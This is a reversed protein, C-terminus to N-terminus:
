TGSWRPARKETFARAGETADDTALVSRWAAASRGWDEAPITDRALALSERVAVPANRAIATALEAVAADLEDPAVVRTLLGLELAEATDFRRGTLILELARKEPVLRPLRLVGGAAAVLGRTVEPLGFWTGEAAVVLDCALALELGGALAYGHVAAIVPTARPMSVFGAFTGAAAGLDEGGGQAVASLDAGACFARGAGRLIAVRVQPDADVAEMAAVLERTVAADIANLRDPRNLTITAVHGDRQLDVVEGM